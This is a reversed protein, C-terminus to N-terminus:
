RGWERGTIADRGIGARSFGAGHHREGPAVQFRPDHTWSPGRTVKVGPPYVVEGAPPPPAAPARVVVTMASGRQRGPKPEPVPVTSHLASVWADADESRAFWRPEVGGPARRTLQLQLELDRLATQIATTGCGTSAVAGRLTVGDRREALALVRGRITDARSGRTPKAPATM